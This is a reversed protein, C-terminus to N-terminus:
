DSCAGSIMQVFDRSDPRTVAEEDNVVPPHDAVISDGSRFMLKVGSVLFLESSVLGTEFEMYRLTLLYKGILQPL